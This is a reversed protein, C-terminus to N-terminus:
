GDPFVCTKSFRGARRQHCRTSPLTAASGNTGAFGHIRFTTPAAVTLSRYWNQTTPATCNQTTPAAVTLSRYWNAYISM